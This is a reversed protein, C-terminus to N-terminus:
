KITTVCNNLILYCIYIFIPEFIIYLIIYKIIKKM